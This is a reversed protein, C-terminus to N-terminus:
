GDDNQRVSAPHDQVVRHLRELAVLLGIDDDAFPYEFAPVQIWRHRQDEPCTPLDDMLVLRDLPPGFRSLDKVGDHAYHVAVDRLWEPVGGEDALIDIIQRVRTAPAASYIAVVDACEAVAVLFEKLQPRPFVSVANSILTGELDLLILSLRPM